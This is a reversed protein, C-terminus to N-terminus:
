ADLMDKMLVHPDSFKKFQKSNDYHTHNWLGYAFVFIHAMCHLHFLLFLFFHLVKMWDPFAEVKYRCFPPLLGIVLCPNLVTWLHMWIKGWMLIIANVVDCRDCDGYSWRRFFSVVTKDGSRFHYSPSQFLLRLILKIIQHTPIYMLAATESFIGFLKLILEIERLHFFILPFSFLNWSFTSLANLKM